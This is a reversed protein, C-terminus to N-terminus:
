PDERAPCTDLHHAPYPGDVTVTTMRMRAESADRCLIARGAEDILVRGRDEDVDLDIAIRKGPRLFLFRVPRRCRKCRVVDSM